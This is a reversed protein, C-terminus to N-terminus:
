KKNKSKVLLKETAMPDADDLEALKAHLQKKLEVAVAHCEPNNIENKLEYPDKELNYLEYEPRHHLKRVLPDTRSQKVWSSAVDRGGKSSNDRMALASDITVNSTQSEFNPNYLLSFSKNRIVRIPFIRERSGIINCNSFAGYVYPHLTQKEGKLMKLFSKGDCDDPKLSGGAAEVLTPTIDAISILEGAVSGPATVGAWHAVLGSHLGNDYCTWKGFPFSSGQESCVM